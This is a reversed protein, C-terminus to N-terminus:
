RKIEGKGMGQERWNGQERWLPCGQTETLRWYEEESGGYYAARHGLSDGTNRRVGEM